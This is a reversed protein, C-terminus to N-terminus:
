RRTCRRTAAHELRTLDLGGACAESIARLTRIKPRSLGVAALQKDTLALLVAARVAPM